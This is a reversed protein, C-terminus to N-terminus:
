HRLRSVRGARESREREARQLAGRERALDAELALRQAREPGDDPAQRRRAIQAALRREFEGAEDRDRVAARHAAVAQDREREVQGAAQAARQLAARAAVEGQVAAESERVLSERRNRQALVREEGAAPSQRLERAAAA